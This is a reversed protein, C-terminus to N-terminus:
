SFDCNRDAATRNKEKMSICWTILLLAYGHSTIAARSVQDSIFVVVSFCVQWDLKLM